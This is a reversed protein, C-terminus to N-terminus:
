SCFGQRPRSHNIRTCSGRQVRTRHTSHLEHSGGGDVSNCTRVCRMVERSVLRWSFLLRLAPEEKKRPRDFPSGGMEAVAGLAGPVSRQALWCTPVRERSRDRAARRDRHSGAGGECLRRVDEAKIPRRAAGTSAGRRPRPSGRRNGSAACIPRSSPSYACCTWSRRVWRGHKHRHAAGHDASPRRARAARSVLNQLDRLSRALRDIRHGRPHRRPAHLGASDGARHPGPLPQHRLGERRPNRHLRGGQARSRSPLSALAQLIRGVWGCSLREVAQSM